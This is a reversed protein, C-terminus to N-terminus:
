RFIFWIGLDMWIQVPPRRKVVNDVLGEFQKFREMILLRTQGVATDTLDQADDPIDLELKKEWELCYSTLKGTESQLIKRFYPVHHQPQSVQGDGVELSTVGEVSPGSSNTTSVEKQHLGHEENCVAPSDVARQLKNPEPQVTSTSCTVSKQALIEDAADQSTTVEPKSSNWDCSPTLFTSDSSHGTLPVQYPKLSSPPQFVCHLPAFSVRGKAKAPVPKPLCQTETFVGGLDVGRTVCNVGTQSYVSNGETNVKAPIVRDPKAKVKRAPKGRNLTMRKSETEDAVRAVPKRTASCVAQVMQKPRQTAGSGSVKGSSMMPQVGKKEKDLTKKESTQKQGSQTAQLVNRGDVKIHEMHDKAKSRTIQRNSPVAKKPEARGSRQDSNLFGPADPRYLGVKFVGLKGKERQEKLKQLQKEEKYKQLLQKQQDSLVMRESTPKTSTKELTLDQSMEHINVLDRGELPVNVDKLGFKKNREYLKHRNKKQSFSKRHAVTSRIMETSFDKRLRSVYHSLAM